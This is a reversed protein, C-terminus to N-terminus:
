WNLKTDDVTDWTVKPEPEPEPIGVPEEPSGEETLTVDSLKKWETPSVNDYTVGLSHVKIAEGNFGVVVCLEPQGGGVRCFGFDGINPRAM